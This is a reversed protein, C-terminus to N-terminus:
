DIVYLLICRDSLDGEDLLEDARMAAHIPADDGYEKVLSLRLTDCRGDERIFTLDVHQGDKTAATESQVASTQIDPNGM